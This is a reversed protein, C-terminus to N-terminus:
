LFGIRMPFKRPPVAPALMPLSRLYNEQQLFRPQFPEAGANLEDNNPVPVWPFDIEQESIDMFSHGADQRCFAERTWSEM